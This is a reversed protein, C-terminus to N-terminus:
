PSPVAIEPARVAVTPQVTGVLPEARTKPKCCVDLAVQGFGIALAMALFLVLRYTSNILTVEAAEARLRQAPSADNGPLDAARRPRGTTGDSCVAVHTTRM